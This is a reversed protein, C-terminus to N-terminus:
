DTVGSFRYLVTLGEVALGDTINEIKASGTAGAIGESNSSVMDLVLGVFLLGLLCIGTLRAGLKLTSM